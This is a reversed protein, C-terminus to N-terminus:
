KKIKKQGLKGLADILGMIQYYMEAGRRIYIYLTGYYVPFNDYNKKNKVKILSTKRFQQRPVKTIDSWYQEVENVRHKHIDNIGVTLKFRDEDVKWAERFWKMMFKIVEPDANALKVDRQKKGGEGWYLALGAILLDRDSLQKLKKIGDKKGDAIRKLRREYQMRAGKMRGEYGPGSDRAYLKKVQEPTLQIDRCWLSVTGKSVGVIEAIEKMSKGQHRLKLAKNKEKSKAM